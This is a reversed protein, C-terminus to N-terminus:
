SQEGEAKDLLSRFRRIEEPTFRHQSVLAHVLPSAAGECLEEALDSLRRGVLEDRSLAARFVHAHGGTEKQVAGKEELRKLMTQVTTYAWAFGRGELTEAVGRVTNPGKDWLTKMVELEAQSIAPTKDSM